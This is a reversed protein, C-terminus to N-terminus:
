RQTLETETERAFDAYALIALPLFEPKVRALSFHDQTYLVNGLVKKAMRDVSPVSSGKTRQHDAYLGKVKHRIVDNDAKSTSNFFCIVQSVTRTKEFM